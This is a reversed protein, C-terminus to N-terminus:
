AGAKAIISLYAYQAHYAGGCILAFALLPRQLGSLGPSTAARWLPFRWFVSCTSSPQSPGWRGGVRVRAAPIDRM